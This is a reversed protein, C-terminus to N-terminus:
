RLTAKFEELLRQCDRNKQDLKGKEVLGEPTVRKGSYVKNFNATMQQAEKCAEYMKSKIEMHTRLKKPNEFDIGEMYYWFRPHDATVVYGGTAELPLYEGGDAQFMVWVHNIKTYYEWWSRKYQHLDVQPNGARLHAKINHTILQNWIDIAMDVCVFMDQISYTHTRKYADAIEDAKQVIRGPQGRGYAAPRPLVVPPPAPETTDRNDVRGSAQQGTPAQDKRNFMLADVAALAVFVVVAIIIGVHRRKKKPTKHPQESGQRTVLGQFEGAGRQPARRRAHVAKERERVYAIPTRSIWADLEQQTLQYKLLLAQKELGERFDKHFLKRVIVGCKPCEERREPSEFGCHPVPCRWMSPRGYGEILKSGDGSM